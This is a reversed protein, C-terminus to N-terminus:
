DTSHDPAPTEGRPLKVETGEDMTETVLDDSPSRSRVNVDRIERFGGALAHAVHNQVMEM